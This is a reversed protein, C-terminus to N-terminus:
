VEMEEAFLLDERRMLHLTTTTYPRREFLVSHLYYHDNLGYEDDVVEAVTDPAWIGRGRGQSALVRHGAVRYELRWDRRREEAIRRRAVFLAEENSTIESDKFAIRGRVGRAWAEEDRYEGRCTLRGAKGKGTKGYCICLGHAGPQGESLSADIVNVANRDEGRRRLLRYAPEQHANPESLVLNGDPTAWLFLGIKKYQEQLFDWWVTGIEVKVLHRVTRGQEVVVTRSRTEMPLDTNDPRLGTLGELNVLDIFGATGAQFGSLALPRVNETVVELRPKKSEKINIKSFARRAKENTDLLQAKDLGVENMVARTLEYYSENQFSREVLVTNDFLYKCVDRGRFTVVSPSGHADIGDIFGTAVQTDGIFLEFPDERKFRRRLEAVSSGDGVTVSFAAPQEFISVAVSYSQYLGTIEEGNIRLRVQEDDGGLETM